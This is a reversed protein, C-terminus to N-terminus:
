HVQNAARHVTFGYLSDPSEPLGLALRFLCLSLRYWNMLSYARKGYQFVDIQHELLYGAYCDSLLGVRM